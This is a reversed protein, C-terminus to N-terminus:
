CKSHYAKWFGSYSQYGVREAVASLSMKHSKLLQRAADMRRATVEKRFTNGTHQLVERETQKPSLNLRQALDALTIDKDYYNAFYEHIIFGRDQMPIIQVDPEQVLYSCVLALYASLRTCDGTNSYRHIESLLNSIIGAPLQIKQFTDLPLSLQFACSLANGRPTCHFIYPPIALMDGPVSHVITNDIIYEQEGQEILHIETYKHKHLTSVPLQFEFFGKQMFISVNVGAVNITIEKTTLLGNM